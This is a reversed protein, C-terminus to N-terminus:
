APNIADVIDFAKVGRGLCRPPRVESPRDAAEQRLEEVMRRPILTLIEARGMLGIRKHRHMMVAMPHSGNDFSRLSLKAAM